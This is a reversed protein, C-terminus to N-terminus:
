RESSSVSYFMDMSKVTFYSSGAALRNGTIKKFAGTFM